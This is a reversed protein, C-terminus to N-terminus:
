PLALEDGMFWMRPNSQSVPLVTFITPVVRQTTADFAWDINVHPYALPCVIWDCPDASPVGNWYPVIILKKANARMTTGLGLQVDLVQDCVGPTAGDTYIDAGNIISALLAHSINAFPAEFRTPKGTIVGDWPGTGTQDYFIEAIVEECFFHAGGHTKGLEVELGAPGYLIQAPGLVPWAAASM